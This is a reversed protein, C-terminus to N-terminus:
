LLACWNLTRGLGPKGPVGIHRGDYPQEHAPKPAENNAHAPYESGAKGEIDPLEAPLVGAAPSLHGIRVPSVWPRRRAAPYTALPLTSMSGEPHPFNGRDHDDRDQGSQNKGPVLDRGIADPSKHTELLPTLEAAV